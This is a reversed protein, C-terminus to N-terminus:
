QELTLQDLLAKAESKPTIWAVDIAKLILQPRVLTQIMTRRSLLLVSTKLKSSKDLGAAGAAGAFPQAASLLPDPPLATGEVGQLPKMMAYLELSKRSKISATCIDNWLKEEMKEQHTPSAEITKNKADDLKSTNQTPIRPNMEPRPSPRYSLVGRRALIRILRNRMEQYPDNGTPHPPAVDDCEASEANSTSPSSSFNRNSNDSKKMLGLLTWMIDERDDPVVLMVEATGDSVLCEMQTHLSWKHSRCYFACSMSRYDNECEYCKARVTVSCIKTMWCIHRTEGQSHKPGSSTDAAAPVTTTHLRSTSSSTTPALSIDSWISSFYALPPIRCDSYNSHDQISLNGNVKNRVLLDLPNLERQRDERQRLFFSQNRLPQIPAPSEAYKLSHHTEVDDVDIVGETPISQKSRKKARNNVGREDLDYVDVPVNRKKSPEVDNSQAQANKGSSSIDSTVRLQTKDQVGLLSVVMTEGIKEYVMSAGSIWIHDGPKLPISQNYSEQSGNEPSFLSKSLLIAIMLKAKHQSKSCTSDDERDSDSWSVESSNDSEENMCVGREEDEDDSDLIVVVNNKQHSMLNDTLPKPKGGPNTYSQKKREPCFLPSSRDGAKPEHECSLWIILEPPLGNNLRQYLEQAHQHIPFRISSESEPPVRIPNKGNSNTLYHVISGKFNYLNLPNNVNQSILSDSSHAIDFLNDICLFSDISDFPIM